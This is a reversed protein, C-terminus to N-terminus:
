LDAMARRSSSRASVLRAYGKEGKAQIAEFMLDEEDWLANETKTYIPQSTSTFSAGARGSTVISTNYPIAADQAVKVISEAKPQVPKNIM